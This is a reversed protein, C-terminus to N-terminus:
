MLIVNILKLRRSPPIMGIGIYMYLNGYRNLIINRRIFHVFFVNGTGICIGYDKM